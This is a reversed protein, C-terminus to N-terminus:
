WIEAYTAGSNVYHVMAQKYAKKDIGAFNHQDGFDLIVLDRGLRKRVCQLCLLEAYSQRIVKRWVGDALWFHFCYCCLREGVYHPPAVKGCDECNRM